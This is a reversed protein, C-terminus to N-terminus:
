ASRLRDAAASIYEPGIGCCGGILSAGLERWHLAHNVFEEVSLERRVTQAEGDLTWGDPVNFRNPYAGLPLDTLAALQALGGAIAQPSTCNFLLADPALDAVGALAAKLTEGSRLGAGAAEALTWSVHVPKTSHRRVMSAANRAERASSMTECIFLDVCPELTEVMERYLPQAEVDPPVLDARYSEGLPPLSGAVLVKGGAGDVASRALKGALETLELWRGAMDLKGLYSPITSYTNTIIIEAGAAIYDRHVEVVADPAELLARASWLGRADGAGRRILESGMGGDLITTM